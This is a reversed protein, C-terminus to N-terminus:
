LTEFVGGKVRTVRANKILDHENVECSSMIVQKGRIRETLYKRREADLESLVDDFLFVPYDGCSERSIEGEGLKMALSISRQQGQSAFLRAESGNLLIQIDDRHVGYLTHTAAIERAHSLSLLEYMERETQDVNLYERVEKRPCCGVYALSPKEREGTMEEFVRAVEENLRQVYRVRYKAILAGEHALQASWIDITQELSRRAEESESAHRLLHNREKLIKNYRQLSAMYVPRIQSIAMDLFARRQEPGSKVLSLHEPCFLVVRLGGVIESMKKIPLGNQEMRRRKEVSLFACLETNRVGDDYCLRISGEKQGFRVLEADKAGRFSKGLSMLSIAELLNTKGQANNGILLNIGDSFCVRAHEINRFQEIEISKCIM